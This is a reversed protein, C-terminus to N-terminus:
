KAAQTVIMSVTGSVYNTVNVRTCNIPAAYNSNYRAATQNVAFDHPFIRLKRIKLSAATKAIVPASGCTYTFTNADVVSAVPFQGDSNPDGSAAVLLDDGATLRHNPDTVTVTSGSITALLNNTFQQPNDPSHQVSYTLSAGSTLSLELSVDFPTQHQNVVAWPSPGNASAEVVTRM